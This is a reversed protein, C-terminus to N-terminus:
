LSCIAAAIENLCDESQPFVGCKDMFAHSSGRYTIFTTDVGSAALKRAYTKDQQTLYDYEACIIVTQPLGNFNAEYLPSVDPMREEGPANLYDSPFIDRSAGIGMIAGIITEKQSDDFTYDELSFHYGEIGDPNMVSVAPYLLAQLRVMNTGANRDRHSCIAAINGGASDGAVAIRSRDVGMAAANEYLYRLVEFCDDLGTPYKYEPALRYEVNFVVARAREALFRCPNQVAKRSGCRWGGGHFFVVAPKIEENIATPCCATVPIAFGGREVTFEWQTLPERTIDFNDYESVKRINEITGTRFTKIKNINVPDLANKYEEPSFVGFRDEGPIHKTMFKVGQQTWRTTKFEIMSEEKRTIIPYGM